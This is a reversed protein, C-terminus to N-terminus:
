EGEKYPELKMWAIVKKDNARNHNVWWGNITFDEGIFVEETDLDKFTVTVMESGGLQKEKPMQESVPIWKDARIEDMTYSEAIIIMEDVWDLCYNIVDNDYDNSNLLEARKDQMENILREM